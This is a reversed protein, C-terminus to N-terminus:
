VFRETAMEKRKWCCNMILRFIQIIRMFILMTPKPELRENLVVFYRQIENLFKRRTQTEGIVVIKVQNKTYNVQILATNQKDKTQIICGHLWYQRALEHAKTTFQPMISRPLFEYEYWLKLGDDFQNGLFPQTAKLLDPM